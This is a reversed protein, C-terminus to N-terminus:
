WRWCGNFDRTHAILMCADMEEIAVALSYNVFEIPDDLKKEKRKAGLELLQNRTKERDFPFCTAGWLLSHALSDTIDQGVANRVFEYYSM